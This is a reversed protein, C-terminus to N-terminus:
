PSWCRMHIDLYSAGSFDQDVPRSQQEQQPGPDDFARVPHQDGALPVQPQSQTLVGLVIVNM